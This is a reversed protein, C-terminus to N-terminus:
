YLHREYESALTFTIGAFVGNRSWSSVFGKRDFLTFERLSKDRESAHFWFEPGETLMFAFSRTDARVIDVDFCVSLFNYNGTFSFIDFDKLNWSRIWNKFRRCDSEFSLVLFLRRSGTLIFYALCKHSVLNVGQNPGAIFRFNDLM